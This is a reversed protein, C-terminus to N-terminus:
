PRARRDEASLVEFTSCDIRWAVARATGTVAAARSSARAAGVFRENDEFLAIGARADRDSWLLWLTDARVFWRLRNEFREADDALGFARYTTADRRWEDTSDAVLRVRGPPILLPIEETVASLELRASDTSVGNAGLVLLRDFEWPDLRLTWCGTLDWPNLDSRVAVPTPEADRGRVRVLYNVLALAAMAIAITRLLNRTM